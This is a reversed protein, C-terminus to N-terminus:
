RSKSKQRIRTIEGSTATRLLDRQIYEDLDLSNQRRIKEVVDAPDTPVINYERMRRRHERAILEPKQENMIQRDIGDRARPLQASSITVLMDDDELFSCFGHFGYDELKGESRVVARVAFFSNQGSPTVMSMMSIALPGVVPITAHFNHKYRLPVVEAQLEKFHKLIRKPVQESEVRIIRRSEAAFRPAPSKKLFKSFMGAPPMECMPISTGDCAVVYERQTTEAESM